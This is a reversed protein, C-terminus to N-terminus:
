TVKILLLDCWRDFSNYKKVLEEINEVYRIVKKDNAPIEYIKFGLSLILKLLGKPDDGALRIGFPWFETFIILNKKNNILKLMGQFVKYEHGQVDIKIFDPQVKLFSCFDDITTTEVEVIHKNNSNNKLIESPIIRNDFTNELNIMMNIKGNFNSVAKNIPVINNFTSMEINCKLIDFIYPVPEFAFVKGNKGVRKAFYLAYGGVYSGVDFVIMGKKIMKKFIQRHIKPPNSRLVNLAHLTKVSLFKSRYLALIKDFAKDNLNFYLLDVLSDRNERMVSFIQTLTRRNRIFFFSFIILFLFWFLGHNEISQFLLAKILIKKIAKKM